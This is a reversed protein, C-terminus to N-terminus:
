CETSINRRDRGSPEERLQRSRSELRNVSIRESVRLSLGGPYRASMPRILRSERFKPLSYGSKRSLERFVEDLQRRNPLNSARAALPHNSDCHATKTKV